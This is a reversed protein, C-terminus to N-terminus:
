RVGRDVGHRRGNVGGYEEDRRGMDMQRYRLKLTSKCEMDGDNKKKKTVVMKDDDDNCGM